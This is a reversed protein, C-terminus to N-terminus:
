IILTTNPPLLMNEVFKGLGFTQGWTNVNYFPSATLNEAYPQNPQEMYQRGWWDPTLMAPLSNFAALEARDAYYNTGLAQYLYALSFMTEVSTCLEAGTFPALGDLREDAQVTGSAAGHYTM